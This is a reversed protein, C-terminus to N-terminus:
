QSIYQRQNYDSICEKRFLFTKTKKYEYNDSMLNHNHQM